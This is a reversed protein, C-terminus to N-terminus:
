FCSALKTEVTVTRRRTLYANVLDQDIERPSEIAKKIASSTIETFTVRRVEDEQILKKDKFDSLLHWAIAEGERDPDTALYILDADKCFKRLDRM